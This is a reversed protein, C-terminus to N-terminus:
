KEPFAENLVTALRLAAQCLRQRVLPLRTAQYEDGRKQGSTFQTDNGGRDHNDGVHLPMHLDEVLHILFRLAFRREEISKSKDNVVARFENIKEDPFERVRYQQPYDETPEMLNGSTDMGTALRRAKIRPRPRESRGVLM